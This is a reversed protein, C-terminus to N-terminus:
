LVKYGRPGVFTDSEPPLIEDPLVDVVLLLTWPINVVNVESMELNWKVRRLFMNQINAWQISTSSHICRIVVYVM